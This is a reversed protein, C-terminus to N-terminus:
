SKKKFSSLFSIIEEAVKEPQEYIMLHGAKEINVLKVREKNDRILTQGNELVAMLDDIGQIVLMPAQGGNWWEKLPTTLNAKSQAQTAKPWTRRGSM